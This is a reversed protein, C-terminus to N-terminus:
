THISKAGHKCIEMNPSQARCPADPGMAAAAALPSAISISFKKLLSPSSMIPLTPTSSKPPPHLSLPTDPSLAAIPLQNRNTSPPPPRPNCCCGPLPISFKKLLSPSSIMPLTPRKCVQYPRSRAKQDNGSSPFSTHYCPVRRHSVKTTLPRFTSLGANQCWKYQMKQTAELSHEVILKVAQCMVIWDNLCDVCCEPLCLVAACTHKQQLGQLGYMCMEM